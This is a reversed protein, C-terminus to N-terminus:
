NEYICTYQTSKESKLCQCLLLYLNKMYSVSETVMYGEFGKLAKQPVREPLVLMDSLSVVLPASELLLDRPANSPLM